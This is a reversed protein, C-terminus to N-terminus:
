AWMAANPEGTLAAPSPGPAIDDYTDQSSLAMVTLMAIGVSTAAVPLRWGRGPLRGDPYLAVLVTVLPVLGPIWLGTSAWASWRAFPWDPSAAFVGMSGYGAALLQTVQCTGVAILMWGVANRPRLWALVAGTLSWSLALWPEIPHGVVTGLVDSLPGQQPWGLLWSAVAAAAANLLVPVVILARAKVEDTHRCRTGVVISM